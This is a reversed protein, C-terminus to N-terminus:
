PLRQYLRGLDTLSGDDNFLSGTCGVCGSGNTYPAYWAYRTVWSQSELWPVQEAMIQAAVADGNLCGFETLWLEVAGGNAPMWDRVALLANRWTTRSYDTRGAFHHVHWGEVVPYQGYVNRYESRFTELWVVNLNFVGGVILKATPDANKILPRLSAYIRAAEAAPLNAQQWYDPENWLLWYSGPHDRAVQTVVAPDYTRGWIMPVHQYTSNFMDPAPWWVYGWTVGLERMAAPDGAGAAGKKLSVHPTETPGGPTVTRTPTATPTAPQRNIVIIRIAAIKASDTIPTFDVNIRGDSVDVIFSRDLATDLGALASIDFRPLVTTGEVAVNFLRQGPDRGFIEAFKLEVV